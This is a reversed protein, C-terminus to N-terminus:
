SQVTLLLQGGTTTRDISIVPVDYENAKEVAQSLAASDVPVMVIATVGRALLSDIQDIQKAADRGADTTTFAWGHNKAASEAGSRIAVQGEDSLTPAAYGITPGSPEDQSSDCGLAMLCFVSLVCGVLIRTM